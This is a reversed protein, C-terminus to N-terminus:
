NKWTTDEKKTATVQKEEPNNDYINYRRLENGGVDYWVQDGDRGDPDAPAEIATRNRDASGLKAGAYSGVGATVFPATAMLYPIALEKARQLRGQLAGNEIPSSNMLSEFKSIDALQEM